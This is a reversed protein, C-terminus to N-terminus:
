APQGNNERLEEVGHQIITRCTKVLEEVANEEGLLEILSEVLEKEFEIKM